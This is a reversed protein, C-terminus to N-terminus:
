GAGGLILTLAEALDLQYVTAIRAAVRLSPVKMRREVRSLYTADVGVQRAADRLGLGRAERVLRLATQRGVSQM